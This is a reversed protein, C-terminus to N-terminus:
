LISLSQRAEQGEHLQHRTESGCTYEDTESLPLATSEPPQIWM